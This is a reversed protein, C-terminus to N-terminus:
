AAGDGRLSASAQLKAAFVVEGTHGRLEVRMNHGNRHAVENEASRLAAASASMSDLWGLHLTGTKVDGRGNRFDYLVQAM